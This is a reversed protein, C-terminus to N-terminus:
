KSAKIDKVEVNTINPVSKLETITSLWDASRFRVMYTLELQDGAKGSDFGAIQHRAFLRTLHPQLTSLDTSNPVKIVISRDLGVTPIQKSLMTSALVIAAVIPMGILVVTLAGVASGMGATVTFIVFATDRTDDMTTRFRVIALTGVLSFALAQNNGIILTTMAVLISLLILTIAFPMADNKRRGVSFFYIVAIIIGLIAATSLRIAIVAFTQEANPEFAPIIM